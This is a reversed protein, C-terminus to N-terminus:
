VMSNNLRMYEELENRTNLNTLCREFQKPVPIIEVLKCSACNEAFTIAKRINSDLLRQLIGLSSKPYIACLPEIQTKSKPVIGKNEPRHSLLWQLFEINIAPMDVAIALLFDSNITQLASEIGALPGCDQRLDYVLKANFDKYDGKKGCSLLIENFGLFKLTSLLREALSIGHLRLTAKDMGMRTSKGGCLIVASIDM